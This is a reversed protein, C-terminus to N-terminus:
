GPTGIDLSSPGIGRGVLEWANTLRRAAAFHEPKFMSGGREAKAELSTLPNACTFSIGDRVARPQRLVDGAPTLVPM